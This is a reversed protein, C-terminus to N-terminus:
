YFMEDSNHLAYNLTDGPAFSGSFDPNWDNIKNAIFSKIYFTTNASHTKQFIFSHAFNTIWIQDNYLVFSDPCINPYIIDNDWLIIITHKIQTQIKPPVDSWKEGYIEKITKGYIRQTRMTQSLETYEYPRPIKILKRYMPHTCLNYALAHMRYEKSSVGSKYQFM